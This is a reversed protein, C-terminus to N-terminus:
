KKVEISKVVKKETNQKLNILVTRLRAAYIECFLPNYWKKIIQRSSAEKITYNFVGKEINVGMSDSSLITNFENAIAMRFITPDSHSFISSM